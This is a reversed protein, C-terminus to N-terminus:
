QLFEGNVREHCPRRKLVTVLNSDEGLQGIRVAQNTLPARLVEVACKLGLQALMDWDDMGGDSSHPYNSSHNNTLKTKM